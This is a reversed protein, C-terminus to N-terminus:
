KSKRRRRLCLAGIVGMLLMSESALPVPVVNMSCAIGCHPTPDGTPGSQALAASSFALSLMCTALRKLVADTKLKMTYERGQISKLCYVSPVIPFQTSITDGTKVNVARGAGM